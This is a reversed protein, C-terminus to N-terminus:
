SAFERETASARGRGLDHRRRTSELMVAYYHDLYREIYSDKNVFKFPGKFAQKYHKRQKSHKM